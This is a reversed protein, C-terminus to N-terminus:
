PIILRVVWVSVATKDQNGTYNATTLVFHIALSMLM